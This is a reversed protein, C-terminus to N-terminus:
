GMAQLPPAFPRSLLMDPTLRYPSKKGACLVTVRADDLPSDDRLQLVVRERSAEVGLASRECARSSERANARSFPSAM